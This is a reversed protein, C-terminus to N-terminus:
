EPKSNLKRVVLKNVILDFYACTNRCERGLDQMKEAFFFFTIVNETFLLCKESVAEFFAV